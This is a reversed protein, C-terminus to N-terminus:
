KAPTAVQTMRVALSAVCMWCVGIVTGHVVGCARECVCRSKSSNVGCCASPNRSKRTCSRMLYPGPGRVTRMWSHTAMAAMATCTGEACNPLPPTIPQSKALSCCSLRGSVATTQMSSSRTVSGCTRGLFRHQSVAAMLQLPLSLSTTRASQSTTPPRHRNM